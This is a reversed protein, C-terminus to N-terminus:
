QFHQRQTGQELKFIIILILVFLVLVRELNYYYNIQQVFSWIKLAQPHQFNGAISSIAINIGNASGFIINPFNNANGAILSNERNFEGTALISATALNNTFILIKRM